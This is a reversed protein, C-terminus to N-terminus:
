SPLRKEWEEHVAFSNGKKLNEKPPLIQLNEWVHLGCVLKGRLPVIHDVHYGFYQAEIYVQYIDDLNAWIPTARKVVARRRSNNALFKHKNQKYRLADRQQYKSLNNDRDQKMYLRRAEKYSEAGKIVTNKCSISCYKYRPHNQKPIFEKLCCQCVKPQNQTM